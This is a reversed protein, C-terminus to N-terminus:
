LSGPPNRRMPRRMKRKPWKGDIVREYLEDFKERLENMEEYKGREELEELFRRQMDPLVYDAVAERLPRVIGAIIEHGADATLELYQGERRMLMGSKTEQSITKDLVEIDIRLDVDHTDDERFTSIYVRKAFEKLNEVEDTGAEEVLARLDQCVEMAKQYIRVKGVIYRKELDEDNQRFDDPLLLM